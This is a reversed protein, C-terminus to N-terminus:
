KRVGPGEAGPTIRECLLELLKTFEGKGVNLRLVERWSRRVRQLTLPADGVLSCPPDCSDWLM